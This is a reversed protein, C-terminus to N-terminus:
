AAEPLKFEGPRVRVFHRGATERIRQRWFKNDTPRNDEVVSYIQQLTAQGGCIQLAAAVTDRWVSARAGNGCFMERFHKRLVDIAHRERYLFFGELAPEREKTLTAFLLPKTLRDFLNRPILEQSISWCRNLNMVTGATQFMYVPLIFGVRGGFELEQRCRDLLDMVLASQFPPNGIVATPQRPWNITMVDGVLVQRGSNAQAQAAAAPDLDIGFADVHEPIAMLFRGDGCSPEMVTDGATLDGFHRAVLLEAAWAPTFYQDLKM